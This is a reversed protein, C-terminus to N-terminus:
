FPAFIPIYRLLSVHFYQQQFVFETYQPKRFEQRVKVEQLLDLFFLCHPYEIYKAYEPKQWYLLYELFRIFAPDDFYENQALWHCYRPNALCQVFELEMSFRTTDDPLSM